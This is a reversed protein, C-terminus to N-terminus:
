HNRIYDSHADTERLKYTVKKQVDKALKFYGKTFEYDSLKSLESHKAICIERTRFEVLVEPKDKGVRFFLLKM